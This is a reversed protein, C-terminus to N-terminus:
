PGRCPAKQGPWRQQQGAQSDVKDGGKAGHGGGQAVDARSEAGDTRHFVEGGDRTSPLHSSIQHMSSPRRSTNVTMMRSTGSNQRLYASM